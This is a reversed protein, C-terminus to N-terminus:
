RSIKELVYVRSPFTTQSVFASSVLTLGKPLGEPGITIPRCDTMLSPAVRSLWGWFRHWPRSGRDMAALAIRGGPELVRLWETLIAEHDEAPLLDLVYTSVITSFREDDHPLEYADAAALTCRDEYAALLRRARELMAPSLDVGTAPGPWGREFLEFLLRGTGCGIDLLEGHAGELVSGIVLDHARSETLRAWVAYFWAVRAFRRSTRQTDKERELPEM